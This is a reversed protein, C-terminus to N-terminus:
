RVRRTRQRSATAPNKVPAIVSHIQQFLHGSLLDEIFDVRQRCRFPFPEHLADALKFGVFNWFIEIFSKRVKLLLAEHRHFSREM